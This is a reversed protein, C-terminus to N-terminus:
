NAKSFQEVIWAHTAEVHAIFEALGVYKACLEFEPMDSLSYWDEDPKAWPLADWVTDFPKDSEMVCRYLCVEVIPTGPELTLPDPMGKINQRQPSKKKFADDIYLRFALVKSGKTVADGDQSRYVHTSAFLPVFDWAWSGSPRSSSRCPTNTETPRWYWFNADAAESALQDFLPLIRQYFGVSLRHAQALQGVLQKAQELIDSM